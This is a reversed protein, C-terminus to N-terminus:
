LEPHHRRLLSLWGGAFRHRRAPKVFLLLVIVIAILYNNMFATDNDYQFIIPAVMLWLAPMINLLRVNRTCEWMSIISFSVILPGTVHSNDAVDKSFQLVDPAAMMWFGLVTMIFRAWM